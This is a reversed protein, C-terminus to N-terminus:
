HAKTVGIHLTATKKILVAKCRWQCMIQGWHPFLCIVIITRRSRTSSLTGKKASVNEHQCTTICASFLCWELASLLVPLKGHTFHKNSQTMRPIVEKEKKKHWEMTVCITWSNLVSTARYRSSTMEMPSIVTSQGEKRASISFVRVLPQSIALAACWLREKIDPHTPM